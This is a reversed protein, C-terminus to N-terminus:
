PTKTSFKQNTVSKGYNEFIADIFVPALRSMDNGSGSSRLEGQWTIELKNPLDSKQLDIMVIELFREYQVHSVVRQGGFVFDPSSSVRTSGSDVSYRFLVAVTADSPLAAKQYGRETMKEDLLSAIKRDTLSLQQGLVTFSRNAPPQSYSAVSVRGSITSPLCGLLCGALSFGILAIFNKM